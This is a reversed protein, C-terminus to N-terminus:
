APPLGGGGLMDEDGGVAALRLDAFAEDIDRGWLDWMSLRNSVMQAAVPLALPTEEDQLVLGEEALVGEITRRVSALDDLLDVRLLVSAAGIRLAIGVDRHARLIPGEVHLLPSHPAREGHVFARVVEGDDGAPGSPETFPPLPWDTVTILRGPGGPVRLISPGIARPERELTRQRLSRTRLVFARRRRCMAAPRTRGAAGVVSSLAAVGGRQPAATPHRRGSRTARLPVLLCRTM